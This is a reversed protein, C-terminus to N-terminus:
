IIMYLYNFIMKRQYDCYKTKNQILKLVGSDIEDGSSEFPNYLSVNDRIRLVYDGDREMLKISVHYSKNNKGKNDLGFKIINLLLEECIFNIFFAQKVGIEWEDCLSELDGSIESMSETKILYSKEFCKGTVSYKKTVYKKSPSLLLVAIIILTCIVETCIYTVSLGIINGNPIIFIGVALMLLCNRIVSMVGALRARGISQWFATIVTNVGTFIISVAFVRMTTSANAVASADKIGFFWVFADSFASCIVAFAGGGIVAVTLAKKLVTFIGKTDSEGVFFATVTSLSTSAGDFIGAPITSITYIVSYIAIYLPGSEGGFRLLLTNFVLMVVAGFINASGMGFGNYVFKGIDTPKPLTLRLRLLRRKKFFHTLLVLVGLMEAICLSASAGVIGWELVEMFLLDLSLNTIIVIASAVASLKPDSDTRVSMSFIHYMVFVPASWMVVTLYQEALPYLEETIGLFSFYADKFLLPSLSLIGIILGLCLQSHFIRNAGEVDPVGLLRGIHVNAGVGITIGFLAYLLFVPTSINAVALGNSGVLNGVLIADVITCVTTALSACIGWILFYRYASGAFKTDMAGESHIM